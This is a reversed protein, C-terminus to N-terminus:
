RYRYREMGYPVYPKSMRKGGVVIQQLPESMRGHSGGLQKGKMKLWGGGHQKRDVRDEEGKQGGSWLKTKRGIESTEWLRRMRYFAQSAKSLRHQIDKTTGGEKDLLAGLYVFEEVEDVQEGNIELRQDNRANVRM